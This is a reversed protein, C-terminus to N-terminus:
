LWERLSAVFQAPSGLDAIRVLRGRSDLLHIAANHEYGGLEDAVIVVGFARLLADRDAVNRVRAVRWHEGDAGHARAYRRLQAPTDYAPDFSISVLAVDGALREAELLKRIQLFEAGLLRCLTRCRTYVFELAVMRGGYDQLRFLRADQDELVVAPVPRPERLVQERRAAEATIARFGDTGQWFIAVAALSVLLSAALSRTM